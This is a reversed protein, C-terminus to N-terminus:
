QFRIGLTWEQGEVKYVVGGGGVSLTDIWQGPADPDPEHGFHHPPEVKLSEFLPTAPDIMELKQKLAQHMAASNFYPDTLDVISQPYASDLAAALAQVASPPNGSNNGGLTPLVLLRKLNPM